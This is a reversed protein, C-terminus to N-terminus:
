EVTASVSFVGGPVSGGAQRYLMVIETHGAQDGRFVTYYRGGTGVKGGSGDAVYSPGEVCTLVAADYGGIEWRYGTTPNGNLCIELTEGRDLRVAAGNDAETLFKGGSSSECGGALWALMLAALAGGWVASRWAHM